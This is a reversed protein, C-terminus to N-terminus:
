LYNNHIYFVLIKLVPGGLMEGGQEDEGPELAGVDKAYDVADV